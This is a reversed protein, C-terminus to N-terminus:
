IIKEGSAGCMIGFSFLYKERETMGEFVGDKEMVDVYRLLFEDFSILIPSNIDVDNRVRDMEEIMAISLGETALGRYKIADEESFEADVDIEKEGIEELIDISCMWEVSEEEYYEELAYRVVDEEEGVNNDVHSLPAEGWCGEVYVCVDLYDNGEEIGIIKSGNELVQGLKMGKLEFGEKEFKM